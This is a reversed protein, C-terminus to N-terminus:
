QPAQVLGSGVDVSPLSLPRATQLLRSWLAPGSEGTAQAWLAAIGAVHPTAMSTGMFVDHGGPVSSFVGVGPGAINVIGGVGTLQSSRASFGAIGLQRDVAAVAMAADANAPPEVFGPNGPRSANNGAAAVVLTGANLARRIPEEYQEVKQNMRIGFSMSVVRCGNTIAWELAALVDGTAAGPLSDNNFVKAVFIQSGFAVGYRRVGTAPRQPGCATGVCHTGHGHIDQATPIGTVFSRSEITRDMFDPHQLDLGTDLVAVRIGQGNRSSTSVGTAQLGWTFQANDQFVASIGAEQELSAAESLLQDYLDNVGDRYGRAYRLSAAEDPLRSPYAIYEPEVRLIPSSASSASAALAQMADEGSMVVVGLHTLQVAEGKAMDEASVAGGEYDASTAMRKIGAVNELTSSIRSRDQAADEKFIVLFRGTTRVGAGDGTGGGPGEPIRADPPSATRIGKRTAM